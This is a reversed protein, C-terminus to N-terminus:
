AFLLSLFSSLFTSFTSFVKSLLPVGQAAHIHLPIQALGADVAAGPPEQRGGARPPPTVPALDASQQRPLPPGGHVPRNSNNNSSGTAVSKVISFFGAPSAADHQPRRGAPRVHVVGETM